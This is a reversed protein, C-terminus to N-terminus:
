HLGPKTGVEQSRLLRRRKPFLIAVLNELFEQKNETCVASFQTVNRYLFMLFQILTVPYERLWSGEETNEWEQVFLRLFYIINFFLFNFFIFIIINFFYFLCFNFLVNINLFERASQNLSSIVDYARAARFIFDM